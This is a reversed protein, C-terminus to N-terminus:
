RRAGWSWNCLACTAPDWSHQCQGPKPVGVPGVAIVPESPLPHYGMPLPVVPVCPVGPGTLPSQPPQAPAPTLPPRQARRAQKRAEKAEREAAM